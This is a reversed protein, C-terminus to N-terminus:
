SHIEEFIVIKDIFEFSSLISSREIQNIIPRSGKLKKVSNDSNLGVVLFWM